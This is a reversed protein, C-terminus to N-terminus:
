SVQANAGPNGNGYGELLNILGWIGFGAGQRVLNKFSKKEKYMKPQKQKKMEMLLRNLPKVLITGTLKTGRVAL